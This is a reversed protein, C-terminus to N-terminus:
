LSVKAFLNLVDKVECSDKHGSYSNWILLDLEAVTMRVQQCLSLFIKELNRYKTGTPTSKPVKYGLDALFHLLHTDLGAYMQDPRSHIVFCRATKPGIGPIQELEEVTCTRLNLSSTALTLFSKAKLNYCGIGHFRLEDALSKTKNAVYKVISFPSKPHEAFYCWTKLFSELSKAARMGNKGAACVWWLLV